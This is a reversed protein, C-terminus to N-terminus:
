IHILSLGDVPRISVVPLAKGDLVAVTIEEGTIFQEVLVDEELGVAAAVELREGVVQAEDGDEAAEALDKREEPDLAGFAGIALRAVPAVHPKGTEAGEPAKQHTGPTKGGGPPNNAKGRKQAEVDM